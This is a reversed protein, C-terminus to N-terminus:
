APQGSRMHWAHRAYAFMARAKGSAVPAYAIGRVSFGLWLLGCFTRRHRAGSQADYLEGLRHLWDGRPAKEPDDCRSAQAQADGRSTKAQADGRSAPAQTGGQLHIVRQAHVYGIRWGAQRFRCGWEVDEAYMFFREDLPGAQEIAARRVLMAAGCVWDVDHVPARPRGTVVLGRLWRHLGLSWAAVSALTPRYGADGAQHRGDPFVLRPGVAALGPDRDLCMLLHAFTDPAAPFADPNLLLVFPASTVRIAQNNAAAFGANARNRLVTVDAFAAQVADATGDGSANDVVVIESGGPINSAAAQRVCDLALARCNWTVILIALRPAGPLIALRPAGPIVALRPAGPIVALRPAGPM